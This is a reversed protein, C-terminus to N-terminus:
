FYKTEETQHEKHLAQSYGYQLMEKRCDPPITNMAKFTYSQRQHDEQDFYLSALEPQKTMM